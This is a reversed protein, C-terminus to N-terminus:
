GEFIALLIFGFAGGPASGDVLSPVASLQTKFSRQCLCCWLAALLACLM